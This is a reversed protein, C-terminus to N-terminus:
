QRNAGRAPLLLGRSDDAGDDVITMAAQDWMGFRPSVTVGLDEAYPRLMQLGVQQLAEPSYEPTKGGPTSETREQVLAVLWVAGQQPSPQTVVVTGPEVAFLPTSALTPDESSVVDSLKLEGDIPQQGQQSLEAAREPDAAIARGLKVAQARSTAGPGEAAVFAGVVKVALRDVYHQGLERLLVVDKAFQRVQGPAVLVSKPGRAEGGISKYYEDVAAPDARLGLDKAASLILEHRIRVQLSYRSIFELQKREQLARAEPINKLLWRFESQVSDLPIRTEGVVAAAGVRSPGPDCAALALVSTLALM